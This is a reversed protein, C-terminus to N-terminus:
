CLVVYGTKEYNLMQRYIFVDNVDIFFHHCKVCGLM